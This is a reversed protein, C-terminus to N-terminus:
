AETSPNVPANSCALLVSLCEKRLCIHSLCQLLQMGAAAFLQAVHIVVAEHFQLVGLSSFM